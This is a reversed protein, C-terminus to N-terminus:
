IEWSGASFVADLHNLLRRAGELVELKQSLM